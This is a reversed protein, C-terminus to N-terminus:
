TVMKKLAGLGEGAVATVYGKASEAKMREYKEKAAQMEKSEMHMESGFRDRLKKKLVVGSGVLKAAKNSMKEKNADSIHELQMKEVKKDGMMAVAKDSLAEDTAAIGMTNLQRIGNPKPSVFKKPSEPKSPVLDAVVENENSDISDNSDNNPTASSADADDERTLFDINNAALLGQLRIIEEHLQEIHLDKEHSLCYWENESLGM